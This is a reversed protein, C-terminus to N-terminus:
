RGGVGVLQLTDALGPLRIEARDVQSCFAFWFSCCSLVVSLLCVSPMAGTFNMPKDAHQCWNADYAKFLEGSPLLCKANPLSHRVPVFLMHLPVLKRLATSTNFCYKHQFPWVPHDAPDQWSCCSRRVTNVHVGICTVILGLQWSCCSRRVTDM